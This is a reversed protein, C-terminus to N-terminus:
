EHKMKVGVYVAGLTCALIVIAFLVAVFVFGVWHPLGLKNTIFPMLSVVSDGIRILFGKSRGMPGMPSVLWSIPKKSKYTKTAWDVIPDRLLVGDYRWMQGDRYLFLSPISVVDFRAALAPNSESDCSGTQFTTSLAEAISKYHPEFNKCHACWPAYFELLIPKSASLFDHSNSTTVTVVSASASYLLVQLLLLLYAWM